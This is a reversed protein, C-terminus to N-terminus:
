GMGFRELLLDVESPRVPLFELKVVPNTDSVEFDWAVVRALYRGSATGVLVASGPKVDIVDRADSLLAWHHGHEDERHADTLIDVNADEARANPEHLDALRDLLAPHVTKVLWSRETPLSM